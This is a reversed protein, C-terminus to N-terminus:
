DPFRAEFASRAPMSEGAGARETSLAAYRSAFRVHTAFPGRATALSASLAGNFADGAGTTDVATVSEARVRYHSDADSRTAGEPHSVFCGTADLTVM